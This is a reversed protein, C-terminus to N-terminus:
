VKLGIEKLFAKDDPARGLFKRVSDMEERSGGVELIERRYDEGTKPNLLGEKKFRTFMDSAFVKSWMYGYYGADYGMLHGFGAPFIAQKPLRVKMHKWVLNNYIKAIDKPPAGKHISLDFLAFILQKLNAYYEMHNKAKLMKQLLTDPLPKGTKYHGSLVRLMKKDWVWHELMQSPAEAFDWKVNYGSVSAYPSKSLAVHMLHGFEHFFTEVESHSLISRFKRSPKPFNAIIIGIPAVYDSEKSYSLHRGPVLMEVCAHGYKNPRPYLDFLVYSITKGNKDKVAFIEADEHWLKYGSLKEFRVSLLKSYIEFTGKKVKDLPFYERIEESNLNFKKRKLQESYYSTDYYKLGGSNGDIRKKLESLARFDSLAPKQLKKILGDVFKFVNKENKVLRPETRYAIHNKYGLMLSIERRLKLIETLIKMNKQGGKQYNKYALEERKQSSKANALFPVLDPYELSVLYNGKKNRKLNNIYGEPLGDLEERTAVIHDKYENINNSFDTSLNNLQKWKEKLIKQEKKPLDFGMRRYATLTDKLLKADETSLKEKRNVEQYELVAKYLDEDHEIEVFAKDLKKIAEKAANRVTNIPSVNLLLGAARMQDTYEYDSSEIAYITNEFTRKEKPIKKIEAYRAKKNAIVKPAFARIDGATWKTWAFDRPTYTKVQM